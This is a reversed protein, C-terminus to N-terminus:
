LMQRVRLAHNVRLLHHERTSAIPARPYHVRLVQHTCEPSRDSSESCKTCVSPAIPASPSSPVHVRLVQYVRIEHNMCGSSARSAHVQLVHHM